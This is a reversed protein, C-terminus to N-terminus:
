IRPPRLLPEVLRKANGLRVEVPWKAVEVEIQRWEASYVAQGEANKVLGKRLADRWSVLAREPKTSATLERIWPAKKIIYEAATKRTAGAARLADFALSVNARARWTASNDLRNGPGGIEVPQLFRRVTGVDLDALASALERLWNATSPDEFEDQLFQRSGHPRSLIPESRPRRTTMQGSGLPLNSPSWWRRQQKPASCFNPSTRRLSRSPREPMPEAKSVLHAVYTAWLELAERKEKAYTARNYIGAVGSKHGSIHNLVAEIVHPPRWTLSVHPSREGFIPAAVAPRRAGSQAIRSDLAAKAKSM